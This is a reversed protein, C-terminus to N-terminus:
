NKRSSEEQGQNSQVAEKQEAETRMVTRYLNIFGTAAGFMIGVILAIPSISLKKDLWYGLYGGVIIALAFRLGIDSYVAILRPWNTPATKRV